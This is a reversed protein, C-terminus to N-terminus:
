KAAGETALTLIVTGHDDDFVKRLTHMWRNLRAWEDDTLNMYKYKDHWREIESNSVLLHTLGMQSLTKTWDEAQSGGGFMRNLQPGNYASPAVYPVDLWFARTEGLLLVKDRRADLNKNIYDFAQWSPVNLRHVAERAQPNVLSQVAPTVSQLHVIALVLSGMSLVLAILVGANPRIWSSGLVAGTAALLFVLSLANYRLLATGAGPRILSWMVLGTLGLFGAFKVPLHPAAFSLMAGFLLAMGFLGNSPQILLLAIPTLAKQVISLQSFPPGFVGTNWMDNQEASWENSNPWVSQMLPFVPNGVQEYNRVLWPAVMVVIIGGIIALSKLEALAPYRRSRLAAGAGFALVIWSVLLIAQYRSGVALGFSLGALAAYRLAGTNFTERTWIAGFIMLGAIALDVAGFAQILLFEPFSLVCLAALLAPRVGAPRIFEYAGAAALCGIVAFILKAVDGFRDLSLSLGVVLQMTLPTNTQANWVIHDLTGTALFHAPALFQYAQLDYFTLPTLGFIMQLFALAGVVILLARDWTSWEIVAVVTSRASKAIGSLELCSAVTGLGLLIGAELRHLCGLVTLLLSLAYLVTCGLIARAALDQWFSGPRGVGRLVIGGWGMMALVNLLAIAIVGIHGGVMM